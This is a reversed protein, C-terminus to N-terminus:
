SRKYLEGFEDQPRGPFRDIHPHKGPSRDSPRCGGDTSATRGHGPSNVFGGLVDLSCESAHAMIGTSVYRSLATTLQSVSRPHGSAPM